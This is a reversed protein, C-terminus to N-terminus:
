AHWDFRQGDVKAGWHDDRSEATLTFGHKEYLSRAADLGAFTTLYVHRYGAERAFDMAAEILRAGAGSGRVQEDAIFWRLRAPEADRPGLLAISGLVLDGGLLWLGDRAADYGDIFDALSRAVGAEFSAPFGWERCYYRGHMQAIRGISGPRYGKVIERM